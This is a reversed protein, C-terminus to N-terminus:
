PGCGTDPERMASIFDVGIVDLTEADFGGLDLGVFRPPSKTYNFGYGRDGGNTGIVLLQPMHTRIGYSDNTGLVDDTSWLWIYVSGIWGQGGNTHLLLEVYEKPLVLGADAELRAVEAHAAGPRYRWGHRILDIIGPQKIM